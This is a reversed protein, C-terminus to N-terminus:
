TLAWAPRVLSAAPGLQDAAATGSAQGLGSDAAGERPGEM